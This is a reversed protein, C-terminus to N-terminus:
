SMHDCLGLTNGPPTPLDWWLDRSELGWTGVRRWKEVSGPCPQKMPAAPLGLNIREQSKLVEVPLLM